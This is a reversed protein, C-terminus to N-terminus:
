HRRRARLVAAIERLLADRDDRLRASTVHIVLWGAAQLRNLRRRDHHLQDTSAHWVGDYELAVQREPYALDTRAVFGKDDYIAWQVEPRPLGAEGLAVRLRSEQPSEARGDALAIVRRFRGGGLAGRRAAGYSALDAATVLGAALFRDVLVVAEALPLWQALDWCTRVPTTVPIGRVLRREDPALASTHVLVQPLRPRGEVPVLVEVPDASASLGPGLLTAASRGAIVSGKPLVYAAAARCRLEHTDPLQADAYVGRMLRRWAKGRLQAQTILGVKIAEPGRFIKGRLAPPRQPAPPMAGM